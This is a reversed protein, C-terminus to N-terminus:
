KTNLYTNIDDKCFVSNIKLNLMNEVLKTKQCRDFVVGINVINVKDKLENYAEKISGGSTMVDDIVVCRDTKCYKGEIKNKTGYTKM